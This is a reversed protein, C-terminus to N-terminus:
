RFCASSCFACGLVDYDLIGRVDAENTTPTSDEMFRRSHSGLWQTWQLGFQHHVFYNQCLSSCFSDPKVAVKVLIPNMHRHTKHKNKTSELTGYTPWVVMDIDVLDSDHMITPYAWFYLSKLTCSLFHELQFSSTSLLSWGSAKKDTHVLASKCRELRLWCKHECNMTRPFCSIILFLSPTIKLGYYFM